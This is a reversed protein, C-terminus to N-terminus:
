IHSETGAILRAINQRHRLIILSAVVFQACVFIVPREGSVFLYVFLPFSLAGLISALSVYRSLVIVLIFVTIAALAALPVAALFVGFGTTVGKGGKFRLWVPFINGLVCFLAAIGQFSRVPLTSGSGAFTYHWYATALWVSCCGKLCDLAFTAAGMGKGGARMANTAGINGSGVDRIDQQRFIRILLYGTPIAGLLYAAIAIAGYARLM